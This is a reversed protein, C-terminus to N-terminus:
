YFYKEYLEKIDKLIDQYSNDDNIRLNKYAKICEEGLKKCIEDWDKIYVEKVISMLFYTKECLKKFAKNKEIDTLIDMNNIIETWNYLQKVRSEYTSYEPYSGEISSQLKISEEITRDITVLMHNDIYFDFSESLLTVLCMHPYYLFIEKTYNDKIYSILNSKRVEEMNYLIGQINNLALFSKFFSEVGAKYYECKGINYIDETRAVIIGLNSNEEFIKFYHDLENKELGNKEELIIAYKGRANSLMDCFAESFNQEKETELYTLRIDEISKIKTYKEELLINKNNLVIIEIENDYKMELLKNIRKYLTNEESHNWICISLLIGKREKNKFLIRKRHEQEIRDFIEKKIKNDFAYILKPLYVDKNKNLYEYMDEISGFLIGKSFVKEIFNPIKFISYFYEKDKFILYINRNSFQILLQLVDEIKNNDVIVVGNYEDEKYKQLEINKETLDIIGEFQKTNKNFIYYKDDSVCIFDLKLDKYIVNPISNKNYVKEKQKKYICEFEKENPLIFADYIIEKIDNKREDDGAEYCGRWRKMAEEYENMNFLSVAGKYLIELLEQQENNKINKEM